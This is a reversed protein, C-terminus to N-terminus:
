ANTPQPQVKGHDHPLPNARNQFICFLPIQAVDDMINSTAQVPGELLTLELTQSDREIVEVDM